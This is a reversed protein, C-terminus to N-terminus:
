EFISEVFEDNALDIAVFELMLASESQVKEETSTKKTEEKATTAKQAKKSAAIILAGLKAYSARDTKAIEIAFRTGMALLRAYKSNTASYISLLSHAEIISCEEFAFVQEGNKKMEKLKDEFIKLEDRVKKEGEDKTKRAEAIQGNLRNEIDKYGKLIKDELGAIHNKVYEPITVEKLFNKKIDAKFWYQDINKLEDLAAIVSKQCEEQFKAVMDPTSYKSKSINQIKERYNNIIKNFQATSKDMENQLGARDYVSLKFEKYKDSIDVNELAANVTSANVGGYKKFKDVLRKNSKIFLLFNEKAKSIAAVVTEFFRKIMQGIKQLIGKFVGAKKQESKNETATEGEETLYKGNLNSVAEQFDFEILTDFLRQNNRECDIAFELLGLGSFNKALEQERLQTAAINSYLGM